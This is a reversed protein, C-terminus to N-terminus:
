AARAAPRGAGLASGLRAALAVVDHGAATERGRARARQVADTRELAQEIADAIGEADRPRSWACGEKELWDAIPAAAAGVAVPACGHGLARLLMGGSLPADGTLLATSATCLWAAEAERPAPGV